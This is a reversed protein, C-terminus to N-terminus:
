PQSQGSSGFWEKVKREAEDQSVVQGAGIAQIGRHVKECICLHHQINDLVCDEPLSEIFDTTQDESASM